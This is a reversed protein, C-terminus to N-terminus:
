AAIGFYDLHWRMEEKSLPFNVGGRAPLLEHGPLRMVHTQLKFATRMSLHAHWVLAVVPKASHAALIRRVKAEPVGSLESLALTALERHGAQAAQELFAGDLKGAVKAAAVIEAARTGNATAGTLASKAALRARLERSLLQRTTESVEPYGNLARSVTTQSLGLERALEKLRM